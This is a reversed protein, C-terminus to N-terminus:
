GYISLEIDIGPDGSIKLLESLFTQSQIPVKTNNIRLEIGFDLVAYEVEKIAAIHLLKQKNTKLFQICDIIQNEFKSFDANSVEISINSHAHKKGGPKSDIRPQGQYRKQYPLLKSEEIFTDINM